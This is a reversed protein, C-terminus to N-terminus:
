AGGTCGSMRSLQHGAENGMRSLQVSAEGGIRSLQAGAEEVGAIATSVALHTMHEVSEAAECVAVKYRRPGSWEPFGPFGGFHGWFTGLASGAVRGGFTGLINGFQHFGTPPPRLGGGM